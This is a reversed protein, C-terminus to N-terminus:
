NIYGDIFDEVTEVFRHAYAYTTFGEAYKLGSEIKKNLKDENELYEVLTDIIEKDSMDMSIEILFNSIDNKDKIDTDPMDAAIATGCAPIEIYKGFRSKTVGSDTLAIRTSCIAKGFFEAYANTHADEHEYSPHKFIGWKYKSPMSPLLKNLRDRLPYHQGMKSHVGLAGVLLVDYIKPFEVGDFKWKKFAKEDASHPIYKYSVNEIKHNENYEKWDNYHHCVVLTAGFKKIENKTFKTDYMENYRLCCKYKEHLQGAGYIELPKYSVILDVKTEGVLKEINEIAPKLLDWGDWGPGTMLFEEHLEDVAEMTRFRIRSMKTDYYRKSVLYVIM